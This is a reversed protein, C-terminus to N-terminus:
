KKVETKRYGADYLAAVTKIQSELIVRHMENIALLREREERAIQEPAKIPRFRDPASSFDWSNKLSVFLQVGGDPCVRHGFVEGSVWEDENVRYECVTGVPPVGSGDWEQPRKVGNNFHDETTSPRNSSYEIWVKKNESFYSAPTEKLWPCPCDENYHTAGSPAKTWDVEKLSKM